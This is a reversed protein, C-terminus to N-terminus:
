CRAIRSVGFFRCMCRINHTVQDFHQRVRLRAGARQARELDSIVRKMRVRKRWGEPAYRSVLGAKEALDEQRQNTLGSCVGGHSSRIGTSPGVRVYRPRSRCNMTMCTVMLRLFHAHLLAQRNRNERQERHRCLSRAPGSPEVPATPLWPYAPMVPACPWGPTVPACPRGPTAPAAFGAGTPVLQVENLSMM